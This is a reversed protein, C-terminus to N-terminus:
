PQSPSQSRPLGGLFAGVRGADSVETEGDRVSDAVTPADTVLAEGLAEALALRVARGREKDGLLESGRVLAASQEGDLKQEGQSFRYLKNGTFVTTRGPIAVTAGGTRDLLSAWGAEDLLLWGVDADEGAVLKAVLEADGMALADRLREYSTGPIAVAEATDFPEVQGTQANVVAVLGAAKTGDELESEAIVVLRAPPEASRAAYHRWGVLGGFALLGLLAVGLIAVLLRRTRRAKHLRELRTREDLTEPSV